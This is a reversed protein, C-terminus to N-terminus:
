VGFDERTKFELTSAFVTPKDLSGVYVGIKSFGLASENYEATGSDSFVVNVAKVERGDSLKGSRVQASLDKLEDSPFLSDSDLTSLIWLTQKKEDYRQTM